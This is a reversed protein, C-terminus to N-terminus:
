NRERMELSTENRIKQRKQLKWFDQKACVFHAATAQIFVDEYKVLHQPDKSHLAQQGSWKEKESTM